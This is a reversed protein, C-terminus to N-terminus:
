NTHEPETKKASLASNEINIIIIVQPFSDKKFESKSKYYHPYSTLM